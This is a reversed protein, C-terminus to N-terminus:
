YGAGSAGLESFTFQHWLGIRAAAKETELIEM